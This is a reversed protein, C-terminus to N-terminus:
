HAVEHALVALRANWNLRAFREENVYVARYAGVALMRDAADRATTPDAGNAELVGYLAERNPLLNLVGTLKPLGLDREAIAAISALAEDYSDVFAAQSQPRARIQELVIARPQTQPPASACAVAVLAAVSSAALAVIPRM